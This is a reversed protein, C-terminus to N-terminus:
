DYGADKFGQKIGEMEEIYEAPMEKSLYNEWQWDFLLCLLEVKIWSPKEGFMSIMLLEWSEIAKEATLRIWSYGIEYRTDGKINAVYFPYDYAPDSASYLTSNNFTQLKTLNPMSHLEPTYVAHALGLMLMAGIAQYVM